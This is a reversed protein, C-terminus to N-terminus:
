VYVCMCAYQSYAGRAGVNQMADLVGSAMRTSMKLKRVKLSTVVGFM